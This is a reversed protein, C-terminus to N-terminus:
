RSGPLPTSSSSGPLLTSSSSDPLPTSSSSSPTLTSSSSSLPPTSSRPSLPPTSLSLALEDDKHLFASETLVVKEKRMTSTTHNGADLRLQLGYKKSYKASSSQYAVKNRNNITETPIETNVSKTASPQTAKYGVYAGVIGGVISGFLAGILPAAILSLGLTSISLILGLAVGAKFGAWGGTFAGIVAGTFMGTDSSKTEPSVQPELYKEKFTVAAILHEKKREQEDREREVKKQQIVAYLMNSILISNKLNRDQHEKQELAQKRLEEQLFLANKELVDLNKEIFVHDSNLRERITKEDLDEDVNLETLYQNIAKICGPADSATLFTYLWTNNSFVLRSQIADVKKSNLSGNALILGELLNTVEKSDIEELIRSEAAQPNLSISHTDKKDLAENYFLTVQRSNLDAKEPNKLISIVWADPNSDKWRIDIGCREGKDTIYGFSIHKVDSSGNFSASNIEHLFLLHQAISSGSFDGQSYCFPGDIQWGDFFHKANTSALLITRPIDLNIQSKVSAAEQKQSFANKLRSNDSYTGLWELGQSYNFQISRALM